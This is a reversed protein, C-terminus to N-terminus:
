GHKDFPEGHMVGDVFCEGAARFTGDKAESERILYPVRAGRFVVVQDHIAATLPVVGVRSATTECCVASAPQFAEAFEM